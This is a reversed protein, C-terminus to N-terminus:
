RQLWPKKEQVSAEEWSNIILYHNPFIKETVNCSKFTSGGQAIRSATRAANLMQPLTVDEIYAYGTQDGNVVRVGMGFDINSSAQNVAGDRLSLHNKFSHEFYLDAYDGGSELATAIVKQLDSETVSFHALM